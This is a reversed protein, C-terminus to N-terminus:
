CARPRLGSARAISPSIKTNEEVEYIATRGPQLRNPRRKSHTSFKFSSPLLRTRNPFMAVQQRVNNLRVHEEQFIAPRRDPSPNRFVILLADALRDGSRRLEIPGNDFNAGQKAPCRLQNGTKLRRLLLQDRDVIKAPIREENRRIVMANDQAARKMIAKLMALHPNEIARRLLEVTTVIPRRRAQHENICVVRIRRRPGIDCPRTVASHRPQRARSYSVIVGLQPALRRHAIRYRNRDIRSPIPQQRFPRAVPFPSHPTITNQNAHCSRSAVKSDNNVRPQFKRSRRLNSLHILGLRYSHLASESNLGPPRYDPHQDRQGSAARSALRGAGPM